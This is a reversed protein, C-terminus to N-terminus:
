LFNILIMFIIFLLALVATLRNAREKEKDKEEMPSILYQILKFIGAGILGIMGAILFLAFLGSVLSFAFKVTHTLIL